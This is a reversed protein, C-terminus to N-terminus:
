QAPEKANAADSHVDHSAHLTAAFEKISQTTGPAIYVNLAKALLPTELARDWCAARECLYAGRGNRKGTPDIAVGGEPDRVIRTLGRKAGTQRCAICTRIPVHKRRIPTNRKPRRDASGQPM